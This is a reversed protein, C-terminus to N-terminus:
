GRGRGRGAVNESLKRKTETPTSEMGVEAEAEVVSVFSLKQKINVLFIGFFRSFRQAGTQSRM